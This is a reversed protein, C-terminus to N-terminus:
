APWRVMSREEEGVGRLQEGLDNNGEIELEAERSAIRWAWHENNITWVGLDQFGLRAYLGRAEASAVLFVPVQEHDGTALVTSLLKAGVGRRQHLPHVM